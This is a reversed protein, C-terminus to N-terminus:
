RMKNALNLILERYTKVGQRDSISIPIQIYDVKSIEKFRDLLKKPNTKAALVKYVGKKRAELSVRALRGASPPVGPTEEIDGVYTLGFDKVFYSFEKHYSMYKKSKSKSLITNVEKMLKKLDKELKEQKSLYYAAGEPDSEILSDVLSQSSQLFYSPGLHYHPNGGAHVDGMSRDVNGKPKDLAKVSTGLDCFGKGGKQIKANGSRELIKPAWAVELELGVQCFIDANSAKAIWHPMADVYHPDETGDLLSVVTVRDGGVQKALWAIDTTTTVINLKAFASISILLTLLWKM